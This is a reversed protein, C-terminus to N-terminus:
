QLLRRVSSVTDEFASGINLTPTSQWFDNATSGAMAVARDAYEPTKQISGYTRNRSARDNRVQQRAYDMQENINDGLRAKDRKRTEYEDWLDASAIRGQQLAGRLSRYRERDASLFAQAERDTAEREKRGMVFNNYGTIRDAELRDRIAAGKEAMEALKLAKDDAEQKRGKRFDESWQEYDYQSGPRGGGPGSRDEYTAKPGNEPTPMWGTGIPTRQPAADEAAQVSAATVGGRGSRRREALAEDIDRDSVGKGKPGQEDWFESAAVTRATKSDLEVKAEETAEQRQARTAEATKKFNPRSGTRPKQKAMSAADNMVPREVDEPKGVYRNILDGYDFNGAGFNLNGSWVTKLFEADQGKLYRAAEVAEPTRDAVMTQLGKEPFLARFARRAAVDRGFRSELSKFDAM